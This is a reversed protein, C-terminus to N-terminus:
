KLRRLISEGPSAKICCTLVRRRNVEKGTINKQRSLCLAPTFDSYRLARLMANYEVAFTPNNCVYPPVRHAEDNEIEYTFRM